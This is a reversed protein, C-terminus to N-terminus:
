PLKLAPELGGKAEGAGSARGNAKPDAKALMEEAEDLAREAAQFEDLAGSKALNGLEELDATWEAVALRLLDLKEASAFMRARWKELSAERDTSLARRHPPASLRAASIQLLMEVLLVDVGRHGSMSTSALFSALHGSVLGAGIERGSLLGDGGLTELLSRTGRRFQPAGESSGSSSQTDALQSIAWVLASTEDTSMDEPWLFARGSRKVEELALVSFRSFPELELDAIELLGEMDARLELARRCSSEGRSSGPPANAAVMLRVRELEKDRRAVLPQVEGLHALKRRLAEFPARVELKVGQLRELVPAWRAACAAMHNVVFLCDAMAAKVARVLESVRVAGSSSSSGSGGGGAKGSNSNGTKVPPAHADAERLKAELGRVLGALFDSDICTPFGETSSAVIANVDKAYRLIRSNVNKEATAGLENAANRLSCLHNLLVSMNSWVEGMSSAVSDLLRIDFWTMTEAEFAAMSSVSIVNESEAFAEM